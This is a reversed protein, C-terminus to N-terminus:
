LLKKYGESNNGVQPTKPDAASFEYQSSKGIKELRVRRTGEMKLKASMVTSNRIHLCM